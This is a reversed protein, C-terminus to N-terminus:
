RSDWNWSWSPKIKQIPSREFETSGESVDILQPRHTVGPKISLKYFWDLVAEEDVDLYDPSLCIVLAKINAPVKPPIKTKHKVEKWGTAIKPKRSPAPTFLGSDKSVDCRGIDQGFCNKDPYRWEFCLKNKWPIHNAWTGCNLEVKGPIKINKRRKKFNPFDTIDSHFDINLIHTCEKFKKAVFLIDHHEIISFIPANQIRAARLYRNLTKKAYVGFKKQSWYDLDITVLTQPDRTKM